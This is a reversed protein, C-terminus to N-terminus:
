LPPLQDLIFHESTLNSQILATLRVIELDTFRFSSKSLENVLHQPEGCSSGVFVRQGPQIHQLAKKASTRIQIYNDAWYLTKPM